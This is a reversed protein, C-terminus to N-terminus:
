GSFNLHISQIRSYNNYDCAGEGDNYVYIKSCDPGSRMLSVTVPVVSTTSALLYLDVILITSRVMVSHHDVSKVTRLIM